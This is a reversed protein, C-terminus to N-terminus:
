YVDQQYRRSRELAAVEARCRRRQPGERSRLGGGGRARVDKAMAKADGCVYLHAGGDLWAVLEAANQDIRDQVYVKEPQDRSFAM